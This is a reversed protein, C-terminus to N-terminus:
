EGTLIIAAERPLAVRAAVQMAKFVGPPVVCGACCGTLHQRASSLVVGDFGSAIEDYADIVHGSLSEALVAIKVCDTELSVTVMQDDASAATVITNFGCVGASIKAECKM